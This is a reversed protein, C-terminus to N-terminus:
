SRNLYTEQEVRRYHKKRGCNQLEANGQPPSPPSSASFYARLAIRRVAYEYINVRQAM